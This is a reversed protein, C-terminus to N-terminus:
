RFNLHPKKPSRFISGPSKAAERKFGNTLSGFESDEDDSDINRPTSRNQYGRRRLLFVNFYYSVLEDRRKNLFSKVIEDWFCKDLSPPNSKIIDEFRKEEERTWSLAVEEGMKDFKWRNFALGLELKVRMRKEAIHFRVCDVSGPHQCGCSDQRGKGIREREILYTRSDGSKLPWVRSGCWSSDSESIEGTWIPVDAQFFPGVPVRKRNQNDNLYVFVSETSLSGSEKDFHDELDSQTGCSSSESCARTKSSFARSEKASLIRQSCRLRESGTHDDYMSPHMKHKGVWNSISQDASIDFSRKLFMAERALLVQKWLQESGYSKWQFKEPLSGVEPDCPDKAVEVVWDLMGRCCERRRKRNSVEETVVTSDSIMSDKGESANRLDEVNKRAENSAISSPVEDDNRLKGVNTSNLHSKELDLYPYEGDKKKPDLIESSVERFERELEMLCASLDAGSDRVIRQLCRDLSDLYKIYILKVASGVGSGLGSEEAVWDWLGNTSVSEYGGRERVVLYLKFLDVSKEDGLMPPLPRFCDSGSNQKLLTCLFHNFLCRLKDEEVCGVYDNCFGNTQLKQPTKFRDLASGDAIKSWGAM